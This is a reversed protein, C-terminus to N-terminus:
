EEGDLEKYITKSRNYIEDFQHKTLFITVDQGNHTQTIEVYGDSGTVLTEFEQPFFLGM